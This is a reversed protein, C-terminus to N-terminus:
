VRNLNAGSSLEDSSTAVADGDCLNVGALTRYSSGLLLIVLVVLGAMFSDSLLWSMKDDADGRGAIFLLDTPTLFFPPFGCFPNIPKHMHSSLRRHSIINWLSKQDALRYTAGVFNM